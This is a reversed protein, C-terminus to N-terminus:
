SEQVLAELGEEVETSAKLGCISSLRDPNGCSKQIDGKRAAAHVPAEVKPFRNRFFRLVDLLSTEKGTCVNFSGGTPAKTPETALTGNIRAVDKVFAFDRTQLGDGFITVPKGMAYRTQFISLVGSYPSSPDQRPGYINFYRLCVVSFGFARGSGMLLIESAAKAAGYPSIPAPETHESIPCVTTNGYTAASSAFVIRPITFQRACEAVVQTAYHNLRFNEMPNKISEQVSVLAALHILGDPRVLDTWKVMSDA